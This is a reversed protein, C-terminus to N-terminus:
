CDLELRGERRWDTPGDWNKGGDRAEAPCMGMGCDTLQAGIDGGRVAGAGGGAHM